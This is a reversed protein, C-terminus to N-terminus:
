KKGVKSLESGIFAKAKERDIRIGIETATSELRDTARGWAHYKDVDTFILLNLPGFRLTITPGTDGPYASEDAHAAALRRAQALPMYIALDWDSDPRPTGYVQSGTLFAERM